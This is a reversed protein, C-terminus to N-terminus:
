QQNVPVEKKKDDDSGSDNVATAEFSSRNDNAAGVQRWIATMLKLMDTPPITDAFECSAEELKGAQALKRVHKVENTFQFILNFMTQEEVFHSKAEEANNLDGMTLKYFPSNTLKFILIDSAVLPRISLTKGNTLTVKDSEIFLANVTKDPLPERAARDSSMATVMKDKLEVNSKAILDKPLAALMAEHQEKTIQTNPNNM